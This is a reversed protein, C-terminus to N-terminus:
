GEVTRWRRTKMLHRQIDLLPEGRGGEGGQPPDAYQHRTWTGDGSLWWSATGDDMAMDLLRVLDARQARDTVRVLAEVRRDLNRHMLDASGLWVEADGGNEFAFIRSHELFRGLVSRVRINESLGPVGPRLACIGRVWIDVPVGALSARYLADIIAEDVLGNCKIRIHAPRGALHHDVEREFRQILGSRLTRPAVLLRQYSTQKSYGTLHNFLESVDEGVDPAATLLGLDEYQRATKPHYNGTGIHCYRRLTGDAEQRVVLSLKCHTKLGVFGYVVHCGAQELKRAWEINAREDFRAKLEVV